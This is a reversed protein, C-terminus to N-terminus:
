LAADISKLVDAIPNSWLWATSAHTIQGLLRRDEALFVPGGSFGGRRHEDLDVPLPLMRKADRNGDQNWEVLRQDRGLTPNHRRPGTITFYTMSRFHATGSAGDIRAGIQLSPHGIPFGYALVPVDKEVDRDMAESAKLFRKGTFIGPDKLVLCGWDLAADTHRRGYIAHTQVTYRGTTVFITEIIPDCVHACTLVLPVDRFRILIGTGYTYDGEARRGFVAVCHAGLALRSEKLWGVLNTKIM